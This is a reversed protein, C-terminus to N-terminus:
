RRRQAIAAGQPSNSATRVSAATAPAVRLELSRAEMGLMLFVAAMLWTISVAFAAFRRRTPLLQQLTQVDVACDSSSTQSNM